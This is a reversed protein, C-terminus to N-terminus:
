PLVIFIFSEFARMIPHNGYKSKFYSTWGYGKGIVLEHDIVEDIAGQFQKLRMPISSGGMRSKTGSFDVFSVFIDSLDDNPRIVFYSVTVIILGYVVM